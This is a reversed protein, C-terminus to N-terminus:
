KTPHPGPHAVTFVTGGKVGNNAVATEAAAKRSMGLERGWRHSAAGFCANGVLHLGKTVVPNKFYLSGLAAMHAGAALSGDLPAGWKSWHGDEGLRGDAFGLAVSTLGVVGAEVATVGLHKLLGQTQEKVAKHESNEKKLFSIEKVYNKFQSKVHDHARSLQERLPVGSVPQYPQLATAAAAM